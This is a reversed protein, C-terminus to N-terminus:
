YQRVEDIEHLLEDFEEEDTYESSCESRIEDLLTEMEEDDSIENVYTEAIEELYSIPIGFKATPRIPEITAIPYIIHLKKPYLINIYKGKRNAKIIKKSYGSKM